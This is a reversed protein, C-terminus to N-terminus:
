CLRERLTHQILPSDESCAVCATSAWLFDTLLLYIIVYGVNNIGGYVTVRAKKDRMRQFNAACKYGTKWDFHYKHGSNILTMLIVNSRTGLATKAIAEFFAEHELQSSAM